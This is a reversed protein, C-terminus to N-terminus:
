QAGEKPSVESTASAARVVRVPERAPQPEGNVEHGMLRVTM